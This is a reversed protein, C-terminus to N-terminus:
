SSSKFWNLELQYWWVRALGVSTKPSYHEAFPLIVSVARGVCECLYYVAFGLAQAKTALPSLYLNATGPPHEITLEEHLVQATMFPDSAPAFLSSRNPLRGVSEAAEAARLRSEEYMHPQLGPLGFLQIKRAARKSEAVRRILEEEYGSGIVLLDSEGGDPAHIGEFGRVQRVETVAGRTFDTTEDSVYATPASYVVDLQTFGEDRLLRPLLMLHPRMFGSIDVCIKANREFDLLPGDQFYERWFKAEDRNELFRVGADSPLDADLFSYEPHVLWEKRRAAAAQFVKNVRESDNYASLFLDWAPLADLTDTTFEQRKLLGYDIIM